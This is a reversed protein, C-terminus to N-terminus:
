RLGKEVELAEVMAGVDARAVDGVGPEGGNLENLNFGDIGFLWFPAVGAEGDDGM